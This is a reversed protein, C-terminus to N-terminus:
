SEGELRIKETNVARVGPVQRAAEAAELAIVQFRVSGNLQVVGDETKVEFNAAKLTASKSFREKILGTLIEDQKRLLTKALDKEVSLKNVVAKVGPVAQAVETAAAKEEETSVRGTLTVTQQDDGVEIEYHFLRPDGMLALKVSLILSGLSKRAVPEREKGDPEASPSDTKTPPGPQSSPKSEASPKQPTPHPKSEGSPKSPVSKEAAGEKHEASSESKTSPGAQPSPKSESSPKSPASKEPAGEKHEASSDSKTSPSSQSPPKSESPPKHPTPQSDSAPPPHQSRPAPTETAGEKEQAESFAPSVGVPTLLYLSTSLIILARPSTTM